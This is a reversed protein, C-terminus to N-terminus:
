RQGPHTAIAEIEVLAGPLLLGSAVMTRAPPDQAFFEAYIANYAAFHQPDTLWGTIKVVDAFSGGAEVLVAGLNTLAQRTQAEIGGAVLAGAANLGLQGATFIFGNAVVARAIPFRRGDALELPAGISTKM